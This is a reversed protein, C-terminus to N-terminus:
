WSAIRRSRTMAGSRTSRAASLLGRHCGSQTLRQMARRAVHGRVRDILSREGGRAAGAAAGPERDGRHQHQDRQGARHRGEHVGDGRGGGARVGRQWVPDAHRGEAAQM